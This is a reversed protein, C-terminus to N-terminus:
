YSYTSKSGDLEKLVQKIKYEEETVVVISYNYKNCGMIHVWEPSGRQFNGFDKHEWAEISTNKQLTAEVGCYACFMKM